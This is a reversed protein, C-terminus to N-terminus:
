GIVRSAAWATVEQWCAYRGGEDLVHRASEYTVTVTTIV